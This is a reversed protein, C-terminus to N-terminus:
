SDTGGMIEAEEDELLRYAAAIRARRGAQAERDAQLAERRLAVLRQTERPNPDGLNDHLDLFRELGMIEHIQEDPLHPEPDGTLRAAEDLLVGDIKWPKIGRERALRVCTACVRHAQRGALGHQRILVIALDPAGSYGDRVIACMRERDVQVNELLRTWLQLLNRAHACGAIAYQPSHYVPLVDQIPENKFTLVATMMQGMIDAAAGRVNEFRRSHAKQPMFSSVGRWAPTLRISGIEELSWISHDLASRDLTLALSSLAFLIQPIEDQCGECDYASEITADFGLLRTVLERDVPWGTGSCAGCGGSNMNTHRYALALQEEARALGEHVALLYAGYTTPQAHSFHSQGAMLADAHTEATSLIRERCAHLDDFVGLLAERMQMRAMPEQLTRGYNIVSAAYEDGDLREKLWDEGGWGTEGGSLVLAQLIRRALATEVLGQKHLMVTWARDMLCCYQLRSSLRKIEQGPFAKLHKWEDSPPVGLSHYRHDTRSAYDDHHPNM